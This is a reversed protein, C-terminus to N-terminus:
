RYLLMHKPTPEPLDLGKKVADLTFAPQRAVNFWADYASVRGAVAAAERVYDTPEPGPRLTLAREPPLMSVLLGVAEWRLQFRRAPTAADWRAKVLAWTRHAQRLHERVAEPQAHLHGDLSQLMAERQGETPEFAENRGLGVLLQTLELWALAASQRIAPV